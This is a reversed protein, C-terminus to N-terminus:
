LVALIPALEDVDRALENQAADHEAVAQPDADAIAAPARGRGIALQPCVSGDGFGDVREDIDGVSVAEEDADAGVFAAIDARCADYSHDGDIFIFDITGRQAALAEAAALSDSVVPEARAALGLAAFNARFIELTSSARM